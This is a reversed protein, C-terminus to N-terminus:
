RKNVIMLASQKVVYLQTGDLEDLHYDQRAIKKVRLIFISKIKSCWKKWPSEIRTASTVASESSAVDTQKSKGGM